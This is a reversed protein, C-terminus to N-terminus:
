GFGNQATTPLLLGSADYFYCYSNSDYDYFAEESAWGEVVETPSPDWSSWWLNEGYTQQSDHYFACGEAALSDSWGLATAGAADVEKREVAGM